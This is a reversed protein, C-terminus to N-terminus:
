LAAGARPLLTDLKALTKRGVIGDGVLGHRCQFARVTAKTEDGFIGDVSGHKRTSIPRPHGLDMPAQQVVRVAAGVGGWNMAPSNESARQLPINPAFRPSGLAMPSGGPCSM